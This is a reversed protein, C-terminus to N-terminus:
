KKRFKNPKTLRRNDNTRDRKYEEYSKALPKVEIEQKKNEM